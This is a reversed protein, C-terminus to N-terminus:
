IDRYVPWVSLKHGGPPYLSLLGMENMGYAIMFCYFGSLVLAALTCVSCVAMLLATKGDGLRNRLRNISLFGRMQLKLLLISDRM